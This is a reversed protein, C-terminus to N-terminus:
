VGEEVAKGLLVLLRHRKQFADELGGEKVVLFVPNQLLRALVEPARRLDELTEFLPVVDFPLAAGPRYLGVERALLFVVLIDAPHHTMSVVHAGKDQWARLAGLAVRLAEGQPEHGM